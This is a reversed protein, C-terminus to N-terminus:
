TRLAVITLRYYLDRRFRGAEVEAGLARNTAGIIRVDVPLPKAADVPVVAKEEIVPLL